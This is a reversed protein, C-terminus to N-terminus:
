QIWLSGKQKFLIPLRNHIKTTRNCIKAQYSHGKDCKWWVKEVSGALYANPMNINKEYDWERAIEPFVTQLDNFGM